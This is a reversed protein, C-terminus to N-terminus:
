FSGTVLATCGGFHCALGAETAPEEPSRGRVLALVLGTLALAGGTIWLADTTIALTRGQDRTSEWDGTCANREPCLADLDDRKGATLIGTVLSGALLAGGTGLLAWAAARDPAEPAPEPTALPEPDPEPEPALAVPTRTREAEDLAEIQADLARLRAELSPRDAETPHDTALLARLAARAERLNGADRHAVYVNYLLQPRPSAEYAREFETAAEAFRGEDYYRRGLEFRMRAEEDARPDLPPGEQATALPPAFAFLLACAMFLRRLM